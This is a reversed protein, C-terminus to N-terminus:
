TQHIKGHGTDQQPSETFHCNKSLSMGREDGKKAAVCFSLLLVGFITGVFFGVSLCLINM